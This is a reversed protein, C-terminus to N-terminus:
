QRKVAILTMDDYQPTSGSFNRVDHITETVLQTILQFPYKTRGSLEKM